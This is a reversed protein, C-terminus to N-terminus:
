IENFNKQNNKSCYLCKYETLKDKFNTYEFYCERDKNKIRFIECKKDYRHRCKIGHIGEALSNVLNSITSGM